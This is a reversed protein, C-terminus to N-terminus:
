FVDLLVLCVDGLIPTCIGGLTATPSFRKSDNVEFFVVGLEEEAIPPSISVFDVEDASLSLNPDKNFGARTLSAKSCRPDLRDVALLMLADNLGCMMEQANVVDVRRLDTEVDDGDLVIAVIAVDVVNGVCENAQGSSTDKHWSSAQMRQANRHGNM